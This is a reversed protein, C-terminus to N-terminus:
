FQMIKLAGHVDSFPIVQFMWAESKIFWSIIFYLKEGDRMYPMQSSRILELSWINILICLLISHPLCCFANFQRSKGQVLGEIMLGVRSM